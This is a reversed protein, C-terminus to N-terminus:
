ILKEFGYYENATKDRSPYGANTVSMVESFEARKTRPREFVGAQSPNWQISGYEIVDGVEGQFIQSALVGIQFFSMALDDRGVSGNKGSYKVTKEYVLKEVGLIEERLQRFNKPVSIMGQALYRIATVIMFNKNNMDVGYREAIDKKSYNVGIVTKQNSSSVFMIDDLDIELQNMWSSGGMGTADGIFYNPRYRRVFEAVKTRQEVFNGRFTQTACVTLKGDHLKFSVLATMNSEAGFDACVAFIESDDYKFVGNEEIRTRGDVSFHQLAAINLIEESVASSVESMPVGCTEQLFNAYNFPADEKRKKELFDLDLWPVQLELNYKKMQELLPRSVDFHTMDKFLTVLHRDWGSYNEEDAWIQWFRNNKGWPTSLLNMQGGESHFYEVASMVEQQDKIFASEDLYSILSRPGRIGDPNGGPFAKISSGNAFSLQFKPQKDVHETLPVEFNALRIVNKCHKILDQAQGETSAVFPIFIGEYIWCALTAEIGIMVYSAGVNRCKLSIRNRYKVDPSAFDIFLPGNALWKKQFDVLKIDFVKGKSNKIKINKEIFAYRDEESMAFWVDRVTSSM